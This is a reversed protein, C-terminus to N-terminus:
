YAVFVWYHIGSVVVDAVAGKTYTADEFIETPTTQGYAINEAHLAMPASSLSALGNPRTHSYSVALEKGRLTAYNYM